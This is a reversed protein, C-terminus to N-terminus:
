VHSAFFESRRGRRIHTHADFTPNRDPKGRAGTLFWAGPARVLNGAWCAVRNSLIKKDGCKRERNLKKKESGEISWLGCVGTPIQYGIPQPLLPWERLHFFFFYSSFSHWSFSHSFFSFSSFSSFSNLWMTESGAIVRDTKKVHFRSRLVSFLWFPLIFFFIEGDRGNWIWWDRQSKTDDSSTNKKDDLGLLYMHQIGAISIFHNRSKKDNSFFFCPFSM